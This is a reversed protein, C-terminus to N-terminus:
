QAAGEGRLGRMVATNIDILIDANAKGALVASTHRRTFEALYFLRARLTQPLGNGPEAVDSALVTWLSRNDHLAAALPALPADPADQRASEAKIRHTIRALLEYELTRPTRTQAAARAYATKAMSTANVPIDKRRTNRIRIRGAQRRLRM